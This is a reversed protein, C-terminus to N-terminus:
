DRLDSDREQFGGCQLGASDRLRESCQRFLRDGELADLKQVLTLLARPFEKPLLGCELGALQRLLALLRPPLETSPEYRTKLEEGLAGRTLAWAAAGYHACYEPMPEPVASHHGEHLALRTPRFGTGRSLRFNLSNRGNLLKRCKLPEEVAKADELAPVTLFDAQEEGRSIPSANGIPSM